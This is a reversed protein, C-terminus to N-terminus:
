KPNYYKKMRKFIKMQWVNEKLRPSKRILYIDYFLTICLFYITLLYIFLIFLYLAYVRSEDNNGNQEYRENQEVNM